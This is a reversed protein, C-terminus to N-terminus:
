MWLPFMCKSNLIEGFYQVIYIIWNTWNSRLCIGYIGIRNITKLSIIDDATSVEPDHCWIHHHHIAHTRHIYFLCMSYMMMMQILYIKLRIEFLHKTNLWIQTYVFTTLDCNRKSGQFYDVFLNWVCAAVTYVTCKLVCLM